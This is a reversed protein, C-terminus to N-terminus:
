GRGRRAGSEDIWWMNQGPPVPEYHARLREIAVDIDKPRFEVVHPPGDQDFMIELAMGQRRWYVIMGPDIYTNDDLAIM